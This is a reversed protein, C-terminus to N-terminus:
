AVAPNVAAQVDGTAGGVRDCDPNLDCDFGAAFEGTHIQELIRNPDTPGHYRVIFHIETALSNELAGGDGGLLPDGESLQAAFTAEGTPGVLDGDAFGFGFGTQNPDFDADNDGCAAVCGQPNNFVIWWLTYAGEHLGTTNLQVSVGDDTRVLNSTGVTSGGIWFVDRQQEIADPGGSSVQTFNGAQLAFVLDLRDFVGDSNWDGQSWDAPEGTSYKGAQLIQTIDLADFSGDRNADGPITTSVVAPNVAAQVDGTAGGVRDCDPNLDCDFGAAFEGTHIQELVRNPDTPGHFRVIFHIEAALANELSGGDGGLLPDGESLQAAFTAEGTPGVLDGDAFGFGFGTQNPDFDADNDGCAAVCGQPNNFVIWWLTYAGEHLGSTNLQVSVGDDTRVLNSTGVTPGGIWFVDRQQRTPGLANFSPEQAFNGRQMAFVLDLQDFVGDSNWDGQSWNAQQQTLYRGAQLVQVLDLTDFSGDRNADGPTAVVVAADDHADVPETSGIPIANFELADAALLLRPELSEAQLKRKSNTRTMIVEM